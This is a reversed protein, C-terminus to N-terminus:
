LAEGRQQPDSQNGYKSNPILKVGPWTTVPQSNKGEKRTPYQLRWGQIERAYKLWRQLLPINAVM